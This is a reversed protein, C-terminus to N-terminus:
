AAAAAPRSAHLRPQACSGLALQGMSKTPTAARSRGTPTPSPTASPEDAAGGDRSRGDVDSESTLVAIREGLVPTKPGKGKKFVSCGSAALAAAIM